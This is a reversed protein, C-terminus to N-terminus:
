LHDETEIVKEEMEEDTDSFIEDVTWPRHLYEDLIDPLTRDSPDLSLLKSFMDLGKSTLHNWNLTVSVCPGGRQWEMFACFLEDCETAGEWPYSGALLVFLVIGLAWVDLSPDLVLCEDSHLQCLEPSMFPNISSMAPILNGINKTFGFDCLKVLHCDKDMLLVNDTKLDRHVLGRSHMYQLADSIQVACRKVKDEPIGVETEIISDLTGGPALEQCFIYSNETEVIAPYTRIIGVHESLQLSVYFETFFTDEVTLDKSMVKLAVSQGSKRDRAHLVQSFSGEGLWKIIQYHEGIEDELTPFVSEMINLLRIELLEVLSRIVGAMSLDNLGFYEVFGSSDSSTVTWERGHFTM